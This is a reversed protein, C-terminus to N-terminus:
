AGLKITALVSHMAGKPSLDSRMLFLERVTWEGSPVVKTKSLTEGLERLKRYHSERTRGLTLHPAFDREPEQGTLTICEYDIRAQLEKLETLDGGLGAWIIKPKRQNPFAGVAELRLTFPKLTSCGRRLSAELPAISEAAISGLFKLTLHLQDPRVWRVAEGLKLESQLRQLESRVRTDPYIAIFTRVNESPASM